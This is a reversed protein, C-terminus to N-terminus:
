YDYKEARKKLLDRSEQWEEHNFWNTDLSVLKKVYAERDSSVSREQPSITLYTDKVEIKLWTDTGIGLKDRVKKPITIQGSSFPRVYHINKNM